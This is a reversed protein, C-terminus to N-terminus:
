CVNLMRRPVPSFIVQPLGSVSLEGIYVTTRLRDSSARKCSSLWQVKGRLELPM